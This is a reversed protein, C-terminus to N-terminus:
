VRLRLGDPRNSLTCIQSEHMAGWFSPRGAGQQILLTGAPVLKGGRVTAWPMMTRWTRPKASPEYPGTM